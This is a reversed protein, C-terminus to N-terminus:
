IPRSHKVNKIKAPGTNWKVDSNGKTVYYSPRGFTVSGWPGIFMHNSKEYEIEGWIFRALKCYILYRGQFIAM